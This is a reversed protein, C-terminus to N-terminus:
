EKITMLAKAISKGVLEGSYHVQELTNGHSGIEFLLAGTSM